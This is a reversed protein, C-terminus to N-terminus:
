FQNSRFTRNMLIRNRRRILKKVGWEILLYTCLLTGFIYALIHITDM